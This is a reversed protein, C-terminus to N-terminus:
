VQVRRSGIVPRMYLDKLRANGKNSSLVLSEQEVYGQALFFFLSGHTLTCHKCMIASVLKWTLEGGGWGGSEGREGREREGRKRGKRERGEKEGKEREGREREGRERERGERERM